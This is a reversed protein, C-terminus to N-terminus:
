DSRKHAGATSREFVAKEAEFRVNQDPDDRAIARLTENIGADPLSALAATAARRVTVDDDRRARGTVEAIVDRREPADTSDSRQLVRGMVVAARRRVDPRPHELL